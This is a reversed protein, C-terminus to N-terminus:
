ANPSVHYANTLLTFDITGNMLGAPESKHVAESTALRIRSSICRANADCGRIVAAADRHKLICHHSTTQNLWQVGGEGNSPHVTVLKFMSKLTFTGCKPIAQCAEYCSRVTAHQASLLSSSRKLIGTSGDDPEGDVLLISPPIGGLGCDLCSTVSQSGPRPSPNPPPCVLGSEVRLCLFCESGLCTDSQMNPMTVNPLTARPPQESDRPDALTATKPARPLMSLRGVDIAELCAIKAAALHYGLALESHFVGLLKVASNIMWRFICRSM